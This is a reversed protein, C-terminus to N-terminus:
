NDELDLLRAEIARMRTTHRDKTQNYKGYLKTHQRRYYDIAGALNDITKAMDKITTNITNDTKESM